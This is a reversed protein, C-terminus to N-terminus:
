SRPAFPVRSPAPVKGGARLAWKNATESRVMKHLVSLDCAVTETVMVSAVRAASGSLEEVRHLGTVVVGGGYCGVGNPM